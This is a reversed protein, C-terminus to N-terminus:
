HQRLTHALNAAWSLLFIAVTAAICWAVYTPIPQLNGKPPLVRDLLFVLPWPKAVALASNLLM